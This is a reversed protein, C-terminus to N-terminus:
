VCAGYQKSWQAYTEWQRESPLDLLNGIVPLKKPGPPLRTNRDKTLIRSLLYVVCGGALADLLYGPRFLRFLDSTCPVHRVRALPAGM